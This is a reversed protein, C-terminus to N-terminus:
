RPKESFKPCLLAVGEGRETRTLAGGPGGGLGGGGGRGDFSYLFNHM